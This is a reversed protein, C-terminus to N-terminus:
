HKSAVVPKKCVVFWRLVSSREFFLNAEQGNIEVTYCIGTSGPRTNAAPQHGKVRSVEYRIGNPMIVYKPEMIGDESYEVGTRVYLKLGAIAGPPIGNGATEQYM